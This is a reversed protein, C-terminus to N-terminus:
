CEDSRQIDESRIFPILDLNVLALNSVQTISDLFVGPM